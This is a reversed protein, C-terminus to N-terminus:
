YTKTIEYDTYIGPKLTFVDGANNYNLKTKWSPLQMAKEKTINIESFTISFQQRRVLYSVGNVTEPLQNVDQGESRLQQLTEDAIQQKIKVDMVM